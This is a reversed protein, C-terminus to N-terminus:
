YIDSFELERQTLIGNNEDTLDFVKIEEDLIRIPLDVIFKTGEEVISNVIIEGEHIEVFSKVISLGIGSGENVRRFSEDVQVFKEFIKEIKEKEIGIGSDKIIIRLNEGMAVLDVEIVGSERSFKIANSLLNLIIRDIKEPDVAMYLEEVNTDFIIELNRAEAFAVTSQVINEILDVINVNVPKFDIFGSEIKATDIINNILRLLRYCNQNIIKFNNNITRDKFTIEKALKLDILQMASMIVTVPTRLEHSINSIFHGKSNSIEEALQKAKLLELTHKKRNNIHIILTIIIIFLGLFLVMGPVIIVKYREWFSIPKNLIISNKPLSNENINFERLKNYDFIYENVLNGDVSINEKLEGNLMALAIAGATEGQKVHNITKGGIGGNGIGYSIINYIPAKSYEAMINNIEEYSGKKGDKFNVPYFMMVAENPLIEKSIKKIEKPDIERTNITRFNLDKYKEKCKEFFYNTRWKDDYRDIFVISNIDKHNKKILEINEYVSEIENVGSVNELTLAKEIMAENSVGLFIMPLDSFLEEKYKIAFELAEDDGLIVASFKNYSSLKYKLLNYFNEENESSSFTRSDMYEIQMEINEGFAKKLGTVQDNFTVFGPNYSSIFLIEKREESFVEKGSGFILVLLLISFAKLVLKYKKM